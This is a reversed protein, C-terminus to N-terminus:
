CGSPIPVMPFLDTGLRCVPCRFSPCPGSPCHPTCNQLLLWLVPHTPTNCSCPQPRLSV